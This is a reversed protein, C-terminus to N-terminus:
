RPSESVFGRDRSPQQNPDPLARQIQPRGPRRSRGIRVRRRRALGWIVAGHDRAEGVAELGPGQEGREAPEEDGDGAEEAAAAPEDDPEDEGDRHVREDVPLAVREGELRVARALQLGALQGAEALDDAVEGVPGAERHGAEVEDVPRLGIGERGSTVRVVGCDGHRGADEVQHILALEAADEGM